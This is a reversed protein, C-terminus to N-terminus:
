IRGGAVQTTEKPHFIDNMIERVAPAASEGGHGGQEIVIAVVYQPDDTPAYAVFFAFDDKGMVESTGTKGSVAPTFGKFANKATGDIVVRRLGRKIAGTEAPSLGIEGTKKPKVELITRDELGKVARVIRPQYFTGGNAIAAYLNAIQLPTALVDGQGIAMNVTDGPFWQQNEPWSVNLKRKWAATPVRGKTESPLDIGTRSGFGLRRSWKQLDQEGKKYLGLGVEYFYTDCSIRLAGDLAQRGHGSKDWCWKSWQKGLGTWRGKCFFTTATTIVGTKLGATATVPKFTSGPPYAAMIARNNLPYDGSEDMMEAWRSESVGGVFDQPDYTPYSAMALVAGDPKMVVVAGASANPFKSKKASAIANKLAKESSAQIKADLTLIIDNGPVADKNEIVRLLDGAANVEVFQTGKNGALLSEYQRELGTKGVLDGLDYDSFENHKEEEESLEGLYGMVHAATSGLPYDRIPKVVLEAGIFEDKHEEFYAVINPPVDRKIVRPEIPNVSKSRVKKRVETISMGLLKALKKLLVNDKARDPKLTLVVSARNQVIPELDRDLIRGRQADIAIQRIRNDESLRKFEKGQVGQLLWLRTILIVFILTFLLGLGKLRSQTGENIDDM